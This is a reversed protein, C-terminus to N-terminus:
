STFYFGEIIIINGTAGIAVPFTISAGNAFANGLSTGNNINIVTMTAPAIAAITALTITAGAACAVSTAASLQITIYAVNGSYSVKGSQSLAGVITWGNVGTVIGPAFTRNISGTETISLASRTGVTLLSTDGIFSSKSFTGINVPIQVTEFVSNQVLGPLAIGGTGQTPPLRVHWNDVIPNGGGGLVGIASTGNTLKTADIMFGSPTAVNNSLLLGFAHVFTGTFEGTFGNMVLWSSAGVSLDVFVLARGNASASASVGWGGIIKVSDAIDLYYCNSTNTGAQNLVQCGFFNNDTTSVNANYITTFESTISFANSGTVVVTQTSATTALNNFYCGIYVGDESGYLYLPAVSFKGVIKVNTCRTLCPGGGINRATLIGTKPYTTADTHITVDEFCASDWGTCDFVASQTHRAFIGFTNDEGQNGLSRIVYGPVNPGGTVTCNIGDTVLYLTTYGYTVVGGGIKAVSVAANWAITCDTTGPVTNNVYRDVDMPPRLFNVVAVGATTEAASIPYLTNATLVANGGVFLGTGFYGNAWTFTPSGINYTNNITPILNVGISGGSISSTIQDAFGCQNGFQDTEIFKYALGPTLWIPAQGIANLPVPNQNQQSLTADTFTAIPTTTGAVYTAVFGFANLSGNSTYGQFVIPPSLSGSM